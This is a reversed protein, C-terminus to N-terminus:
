DGAVEQYCRVTGEAARKWTFGAARAPGSARLRALLASDRLTRDLVETMDEGQLPDFYVGEPGVVEPLSSASSVVVAAGCAMAELPPIGFGEYLSAAIFLECSSYLAALQADSPQLFHVYPVLKLAHLRDFIPQYLWGPRGAIVLPYTLGRARLAAYADLLRPYNKRPELTGVSLLFPGELGFEAVVGQAQERCVPRFAPDVGEPIVTIRQPAVGLLEILDRRTCESVAVIHTARRVSRPVVEELYARLTPYACEPVRLFALDHVTLIRPTQLAPPLTFDPSHFLDIPGTLLQVPLPLQLRHWLINLLRDTVPIRRAAVGPPLWGQVEGGGAYYVAYDIPAALGHLAALLDRTYRGIGARQRAAATADFGVTLAM